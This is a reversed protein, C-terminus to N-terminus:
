LYAKWKIPKLQQNWLYKMFNTKCDHYCLIKPKKKFFLKFKTNGDRKVIRKKTLINLM